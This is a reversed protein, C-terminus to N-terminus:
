AEAGISAMEAPCNEMMAEKIENIQEILEEGYTTFEEVQKEFKIGELNENLGAGTNFIKEATNKM